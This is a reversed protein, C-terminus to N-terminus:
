AAQHMAAARGTLRAYAHRLVESEHEWTLEAAARDANEKYLDLDALLASIGDRVEGPRGTQFLRGVQYGDVITRMDPLDSALVPLGAQVAEFLKNPL